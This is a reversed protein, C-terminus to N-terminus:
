KFEVCHKLDVGVAEVMNGQDRACLPIGIGKKFRVSDLAMRFGGIGFSASTLPQPIPGAAM